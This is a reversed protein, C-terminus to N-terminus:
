FEYPRQAIFERASVAFGDSSPQQWGAQAPKRTDAQRKGAVGSADCITKLRRLAPRPLTLRLYLRL